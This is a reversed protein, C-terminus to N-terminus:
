RTLRAWVFDSGKGQLRAMKIWLLTMHELHLAQSLPGTDTPEWGLSECIAGVKEKAHANDGAILMAPRLDAYGPYATDVFNEFGYITFAKVVKCEPVLSQIFEAGSQKSDLGHSIGPGVPNTCDVLIKDALGLKSVVESVAGFPVALFIIDARNCGESLSMHKLASNNQLAKRVSESTVDDAAVVVEYGAKSLNDALAFGVKGIGIFAIKM